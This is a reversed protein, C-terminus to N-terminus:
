SIFRIRTKIRKDREAVVYRMADCGHDNEKVPSEKPQKGETIDWIYGPVEEETCQPRESVKLQPDREVLSDRMLMIRPKGTADVSLRSDVYQIGDTVSKYAARTPLGTKRAFTGRGEADHDCIVAQPKPETWEWHAPNEWDPDEVGEIPRRVLSLIQKAHDEVLRRTHYIERYLILRDDPDVAWCQLVFPNTFGFDITWYRKWSDPIDFRDIVHVSPNWSEYVMGEASVWKGDRLRLRRVGTLNDLVAMYEVGEPTKTGDANYLRPNDTHWSYMIKTTGSDCRQKLWHTPTWPNADAILQQFSVAGNRLRTTLNEWDTLTLQTAEQVYILDYETSMVKVPDDMGGLAVFSGNSYRYGPPEDRSGGFYVVGRSAIAEKAVHTKYTVVGSSTLSVLTKRIMLARAGPNRVMVMHLKELCARSKGTGAPGSLLVEKGRYRMLDACAGRPAYTHEYLLSPM